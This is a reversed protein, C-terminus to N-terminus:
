LIISWELYGVGTNKGPSDWPGPLRTPQWRHPQLSNSVVSRSLLLLVNVLSKNTYNDNNFSIVQLINYSLLPYSGVRNTRTLDSWDCGVRHLRHVTAQWAERAMPNELCSHQLPNSHGGRLSRKLGPALGSDIIDGAIASSNKVVLAVQSASQLCIVEM